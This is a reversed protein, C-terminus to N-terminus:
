GHAQLIALSNEDGASSLAPSWASAANSRTTKTAEVQRRNSHARDRVRHRRGGYAARLRARRRIALGRGQGKTNGCAYAALIQLTAAEDDIVQLRGYAHVAVYNWTPM